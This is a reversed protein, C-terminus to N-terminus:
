GRGTNNKYWQEETLSKRVVNLYDRGKMHWWHDPEVYHFFIMAVQQNAPNPFENRWHEQDNGYYALAQNEQLTYGKDDVYLDWPETQYVCWDITYTCANDDKHHQLFANNGEYQSFLSYSPLLTDSEFVERALPLLMRSYHDIIPHTVLWRGNDNSWDMQTRPFSKLFSKLHEHESQPLVEDLLMPPKIKINM